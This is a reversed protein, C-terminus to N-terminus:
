VVPYKSDFVDEIEREIKKSKQLNEKKTHSFDTAQSREIKEREIKSKLM